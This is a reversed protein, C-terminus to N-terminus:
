LSHAYPLALKAGHWLVSPFTVSDPEGHALRKLACPDRINTTDGTTTYSLATTM